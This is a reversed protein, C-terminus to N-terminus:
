TPLESQFLRHVHRLILGLLSHIFHKFCMIDIVAYPHHLTYLSMVTDDLAVTKRCCEVFYHPRCCAINHRKDNGDTKTITGSNEYPNRLFSVSVPPCVDGRVINQLV